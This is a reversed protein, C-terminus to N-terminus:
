YLPRVRTEATGSEIYEQAHGTPAERRDQRHQDGQRAGRGPGGAESVSRPWTDRCAQAVRFAAPNVDPRLRNAPRRHSASGDGQEGDARVGSWNEREIVGQKM